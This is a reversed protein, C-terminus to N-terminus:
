GRALRRNVGTSWGGVSKQLKGAHRIGEWEPSDRVGDTGERRLKVDGEQLPMGCHWKTPERIKEQLM